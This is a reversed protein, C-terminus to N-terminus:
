VSEDLQDLFKHCMGKYFWAAAYDPLLDLTRKFFEKGQEFRQMEFCLIGLNTFFMGEQPNLPFFRDAVKQMTDCLKDKMADSALAAQPRVANYFGHLIPPDYNGLKVLRLIHDLSPKPCEAEVCNILSWYDQMEFSNVQIDFTRETEPSDERSLGKVGALVVFDEDESSSRLAYGGDLDFFLGLAYYDVPVSFTGHLSLRPPGGTAVQEKHTIGQDGALLLFGERALNQINELVRYGQVPLCCHADVFESAYHALVRHATSDPPFPIAELDKFSYNWRLEPILEPAQPDEVGEQDVWLTM